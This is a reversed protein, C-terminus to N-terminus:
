NLEEKKLCSTFKLEAATIADRMDGSYLEESVSKIIKEASIDPMSIMPIDFRECLSNVKGKGLTYDIAVTKTGLSVGFVASHFRMALLADANKIERCYVEPELEKLLLSTNLNKKIKPSNLFLRNYFWRDDSGFHNTCMPLPKIILDKDADILKEIALVVSEEYNQKLEICEVETLHKAYQQYPFDRLGLVLTKQEGISDELNNAISALWTFAPDEAVHDNTTDIGLSSALEKSKKDRYIRTNALELVKKISENHWEEGLPGVGCGGVVTRVQYKNAAEFLCQMLAMEDIAMMPGGGFVLTDVNKLEKFAEDESLIKTNRFEKMQMNTIETLYKNLSVVLFQTSDGFIERYSNMLGAIIGKDGLTETGYWGCIMIKRVQSDTKKSVNVNHYCKSLQAIKSKYRKKLRYKNVHSFANNEAIIERLKLKNVVRNKILQRYDEKNPVGGYDHMCKDCEKEFINRAHEANNFYAKTLNNSSVDSCIVKSKVACYAMEGKSTITVGRHQWNCGARRKKREIVQGILSNYFFKQMEDKEYYSIIGHLFEVFHYKEEFNLDYPSIINETYLRQHPIGLRYKIYYDNTECFQHLNHLDYVNEKIVTCGVRVNDVLQYSKLFELVKLANDFAGTKGRVRDHVDGYGDLSVMVDFHIDRSKVKEAVEKIKEIVQTSRIGNTILSVHKLKGLNRVAVEVLEPLDDRLTPEGGNFGIGTVEDFLENSLAKDLGDPQIENREKNKWINCMQCKSNCIDNVPFQIVIPKELERAGDSMAYSLTKLIDNIKM